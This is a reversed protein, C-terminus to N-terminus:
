APLPWCWPPFVTGEDLKRLRTLVNGRVPAIDVGPFLEKLQVARRASACGIPKTRDLQTVGEPLVLM